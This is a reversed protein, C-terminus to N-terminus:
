LVSAMLTDYAKELNDMNKDFDSISVPFTIHKQPLRTRFTLNQLDRSYKLVDFRRTKAIVLYAEYPIDKGFCRSAYKRYDEITNLKGTLLLKILMRGVKNSFSFKDFLKVDTFKSIFWDYNTGRDLKFRLFKHTKYCYQIYVPFESKVYFSHNGSKVVNRKHYIIIEDNTREIRRINETEVRHNNYIYHKLDKNEILQFDEIKMRRGFFESSQVLKSM